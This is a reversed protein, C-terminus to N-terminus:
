AAVLSDAQSCACRSAESPFLGSASENLNNASGMKRLRPMKNARPQLSSEPAPPVTGQELPKQWMAAKETLDLLLNKGKLSPLAGRALDKVENLWASVDDEARQDLILQNLVQPM